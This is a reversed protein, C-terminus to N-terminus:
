QETLHRFGCQEGPPHLMEGRYNEARSPTVEAMSLAEVMGCKRFDNAYCSNFEMLYIGHQVIVRRISPCHASPRKNANLANVLRKVIKEKIQGHELERVFNEPIVICIQSSLGILVELEAGEANMIGELVERLTYSLERLDSNNLETRAQECMNWLMSAATYKNREDHILTTLEKIFVYGPEMLMILCNNASEMALMALAQGAIKQLLHNSNTSSSADRSLFERMLSRIILGIHGIDESTNRDMALNKLIEAALQKLGHSSERDGLIEALKSLLFPHELIEQRLSVGSKGKTSALTRLVRLSLGALM